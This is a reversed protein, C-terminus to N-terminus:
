FPGGNAFRRFDTYLCVCGLVDVTLVYVLSVAFSNILSAPQLLHMGNGFLLFYSIYLRPHPTTSGSLRQEEEDLSRLARMGKTAIGVAAIHDFM